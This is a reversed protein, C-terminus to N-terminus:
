PADPEDPTRLSDIYAVLKWIQDDPLRTGWAPMGKGRGQAISDFIDADNHGYTWDRDRLSPGMGGGARGGHCGSCNYQVFLQRGERMAVENGTYPGPVPKEAAFPGPVPGVPGLAQPSVTSKATVNHQGIPHECGALAIVCAVVLAARSM